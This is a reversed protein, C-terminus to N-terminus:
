QGREGLGNEWALSRDRAAIEWKGTVRGEEVTLSDKYLAVTPCVHAPIAYCVDAIRADNPAASELVLHEENHAVIKAVPFELVVCREPIPLDCALAKSGVDLTVRTPTPRSVVRTLLIAAPTFGTIDPYTASYGHDHLAFTGPSCELGPLDLHAFIPFSPTGGVILSPVHLGRRELQKRLELVPELVRRILAEREAPDAHRNHGDYVHLGGPRLSPSAAVQAYLEAAAGGPVIGTRNQGVNIDILVGLTQKIEGFATALPMVADPHDVLCSFQTGAYAAALRALRRANPGVIPYAILVDPAGCAAIAEAEALTACKHKTIGMELALRIIERTKHTKAHPRLRGPSGAMEIARALNQRILATYFLLAPSFVADPERLRYIHTM